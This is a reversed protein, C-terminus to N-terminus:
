CHVTPEVAHYLSLSLKIIFSTRGSFFLKNLSINACTTIGLGGRREGCGIKRGGEEELRLAMMEKPFKNIKQIIDEPFQYHKITEEFESHLLSINDTYEIYDYQHFEKM